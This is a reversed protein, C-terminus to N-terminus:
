PARRVSDAVALAEGIAEEVSLARGSERAVTLREEGLAVTLAALARERIPRDRPFLPTGLSAAIGEAAGLLRGGKEFRGAVAAVGALGLLSSAVLMTISLNWARHLSDGYLAAARPYDGTCYSVGALGAQADIPGWAPQPFERAEDYRQAWNLRAAYRTAALEFREQALAIDGLVLLTVGHIPTANPEGGLLEGLRGHADDILDEARGFDGQRYAVFGGVALARGALLPDGLERAQVLEEAAFGAARDFDGQFAAMMGGAALAEDRGASPVPSSRHLAREVWEVGERYLGPATWMGYALACLRLLAESDGREDFWALALRVNDREPVFRILHDSSLSWFVPGLSDSIRLFHTAHRQRADDLDRALTLQELGFERVTELMVYRPPAGSGAAQRLLSQQVLSVVGNLVDSSHHEPDVAEAADLTFGGAFVALRRFLNQERPTLLDYSWAIADQMTRQRAPLDRGGGILLPLRKELRTLLAPPPLARTRAAALEIALPLGDLRRCIAAVAAANEATLAFGASTARAREVFLAVAPVHALEALPPLRGPDSLPLPEVAFEREARIRLPERSTALVAFQTSTALLAAIDAAAGLVQECNDMVLLLQRARLSRGVAEPLPEGVTERVGLAAAITPMVLAPDTLPSLDVFCVGDRYRDRLVAAVEQALRTKGTGGPGTLTVLRVDDQVLLSSLGAMEEDRGILRTPPLPLSDRVTPRVGVEFRGAELDPRAAAILDARATESLALADALMRVTELRPARHVGRELDSLARVSLGAREALEDQSLAAATRYRRVLNGIRPIERTEM